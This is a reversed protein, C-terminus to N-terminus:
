QMYKIHMVKDLISEIVYATAVLSSMNEIPHGKKKGAVIGLSATSAITEFKKSM